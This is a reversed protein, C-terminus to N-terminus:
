EPDIDWGRRKQVAIRNQDWFEERDKNCLSTEM